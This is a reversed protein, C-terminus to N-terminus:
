GEKKLPDDSGPPRSTTEKKAFSDLSCQIYRPRDVYRRDPNFDSVHNSKISHEKIIIM